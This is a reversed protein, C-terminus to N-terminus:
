YSQNIKELFTYGQDQLNIRNEIDCCDILKLKLDEIDDIILSPSEKPFGSYVNKSVLAPIGYFFYDLVKNQMGTGNDILAVGCLADTIVDELNDVFGHLFINSFGSLIKRNQSSLSGIVHLEYKADIENLMKSTNIISYFNPEYDVQGIFVIKRENIVNSTKKPPVSLISNPLISYNKAIPILSDNSSIFLTEIAANKALSEEFKSLRKAEYNFLIKKLSFTPLLDARLRYNDGLSECLDITVKNKVKSFQFTRSLHFIAEDSSYLEKLIHSRQFIINSIPYGKFFLIVARCIDFITLPFYKINIGDIFITESKFFSPCFVWKDNNKKLSNLLVHMRLVSGRTEDEPSCTSIVVGKNKM